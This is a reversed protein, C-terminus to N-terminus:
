GGVTDEPLPNTASMKLMAELSRLGVVVATPLDNRTAFLKELVSEMVGAVETGAFLAAAQKVGCEHCLYATGLPILQKAETISTGCCACFLNGRNM